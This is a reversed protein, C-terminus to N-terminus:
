SQSTQTTLIRPCTGGSTSLQRVIGDRGWCYHDITTSAGGPLELLGTLNVVNSDASSSFLDSTWETPPNLPLKIDGAYADIAAQVRAHEILLLSRQEDMVTFRGITPTVVAALGAVMGVVLLFEALSYGIPRGRETTRRRALVARIKLARM